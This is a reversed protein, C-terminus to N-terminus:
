RGMSLVEQYSRLLNNRIAMVFNLAVEAEKFAIMAEHLSETEGTVLQESLLDAKNQLSNTKEIGSLMMEYFGTDPKKEGSPPKIAIQPKPMLSFLDIGEM